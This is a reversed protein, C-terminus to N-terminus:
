FWYQPQHLHIFDWYIGIYQMINIKILIDLINILLHNRYFKLNSKNLKCKKHFKILKYKKEKYINNMYFQVRINIM